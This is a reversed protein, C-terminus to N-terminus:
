RPRLHEWGQVQWADLNRGGLTREEEVVTGLRSVPTSLRQALGDFAEAAITFLLEFDEGGGLALALPEPAGEPLDVRGIDPDIPVADPDLDCGVGSSDLVHGLDALLGDSVDICATAGLEALLLGEDLRAEPELQRSILRSVADGEQPGRGSRLLGLGAAAGGLAGTVCVLDGSRAGSRTLPEADLEGVLAVGLSLDRGESIDGGVIDIGLERGARALGQALEDVTEFPTDPPLILSAVAALPRGGMAAVDSANVALAKFGLSASPTYSLDFDIGEVLVDTTFVTQGTIPPLVAADDGSWIQGEPARDLRARIAEILGWEGSDSARSTM